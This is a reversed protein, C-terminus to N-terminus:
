KKSIKFPANITNLIWEFAKIKEQIDEISEKAWNKERSNEEAEKYIAEQEELQTKLWDCRSDIDQSIDSIANVWIKTIQYDKM